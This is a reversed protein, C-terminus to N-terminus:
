LTMAIYLVRVEEKLTNEDKQIEKEIKRNVFDIVIVVDAEKGKAAHMTDMYIAM